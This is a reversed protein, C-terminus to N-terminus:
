DSDFSYTRLVEYENIREDVINKLKESWPLLTRSHPLTQFVKNACVQLYSETVPVGLFKTISSITQHPHHVLDRLHINLINEQGIIEIIEATAQVKTFYQAVDKLLNANNLKLINAKEKTQSVFKAAGGTRKGIRYLYTTSVTDYPNRIVHLVKIPIALRAKLDRYNAAFGEKNKIYEMTVIGGSKDGIVDIYNDFRGQWSPHIELTYGKSNRERSMGPLLSTMSNLYITNFLNNIGIERKQKSFIKNWKAMFQLENSVVIHPHADLISGVVSHGSRAYGIFFIFTKINRLVESSRIPEGKAFEKRIDPRRHSTLTTITSSDIAPKM